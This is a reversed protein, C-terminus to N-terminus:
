PRLGPLGPFPMAQAGVGQPSALRDTWLKATDTFADLMTEFRAYDLVAVPVKMAYVVQGNFPDAGFAGGQTGKFLYNADMLMEFAKARQDSALQAVEAYLFFQSSTEDYEMNVTLDDVVMALCGEDDLALDEIGINKGLETLLRGLVDLDSQM